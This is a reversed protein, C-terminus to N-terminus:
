SHGQPGKPQWGSAHSDGNNSKDGDHSNAAPPTWTHRAPHLHKLYHTGM